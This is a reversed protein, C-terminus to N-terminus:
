RRLTVGAEAIFRNVDGNNDPEHEFTTDLRFAVIPSARWTLGARGSYTRTDADIGSFVTDDVGVGVRMDVNRRLAHTLGLDASRNIGVGSGAQTTPDLETAIDLTVSTLATVDWTLSAAATIALVDELQDDDFQEGALGVSADGRLPGDDAIALGGRLAYNLSNREFGNRDVREDFRRLGIESEVFPRMIPGPSQSLRLTVDGDFRNRDDNSQVGGGALSTESFLTRSGELGLTAEVPGITRSLTAGVEFDHTDTSGDAGAAANSDSDPEGTLTYGGRLTATTELGLDLRLESDVAMSRGLDRGDDVYELTGRLSGTWAHRRWDSEVSIEPSLTVTRVERADVDSDTNSDYGIALDIAPFWTLPGSRIGVPAYPDPVDIGQQTALEPTAPTEINGTVLDSDPVAFRRLDDEGIVDAADSETQSATFYRAGPVSEEPLSPLGGTPGISPRLSADGRGEQGPLVVASDDQSQAHAAGVGMVGQFVLALPAIFGFLVVSFSRSSM